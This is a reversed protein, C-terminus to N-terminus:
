KEAIKWNAIISVKKELILYVIKSIFSFDCIFQCLFSIARQNKKERTLLQSTLLQSKEFEIIQWFLNMWRSNMKEFLRWKLNHISFKRSFIFLLYVSMTTISLVLRWNDQFVFKVCNLKFLLCHAGKVRWQISLLSFHISFLVFIKKWIWFFM